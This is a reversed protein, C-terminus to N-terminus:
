AYKSKCYSLYEARVSESVQMVLGSIRKVVGGGKGGAALGWGGSGAVRWVFERPYSDAFSAVPSNKCANM